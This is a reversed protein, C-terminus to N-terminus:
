AATTSRTAGSSPLPGPDLAQRPAGQPPYDYAQQPPRRGVARHPRVTNYYGRFLDLQHQLVAITAAPPQAALWKKQTQHFREVKGCTQPHYPRSHHLRVGLSTTSSARGPWRPATQRHLVAGNDTLVSAPIGYSGFTQRRVAPGIAAAGPVQAGADITINLFGPGAM